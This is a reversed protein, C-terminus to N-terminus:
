FVSMGPFAAASTKETSGKEAQINCTAQLNFLRPDNATALIRVGWSRRLAQVARILLVFSLSAQLFPPCHPLSSFPLSARFQPRPVCLFGWCCIDTLFFLFHQHIPPLRFWWFCLFPLVVPFPVSFCLMSRPDSFLCYIFLSFFLHLTSKHYM